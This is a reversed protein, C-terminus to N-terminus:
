GITITAGPCEQPDTGNCYGGLTAPCRRCRSTPKDDEWRHQAALERRQEADSEQKAIEWASPPPPIPSQDTPDVPPPLLYDDLPVLDSENAERRADQEQQQSTDQEKLSAIAPEKSTALVSEVTTSLCNLSLPPLRNGSDAVRNGSDSPEIVQTGGLRNGSNPEAYAPGLKTSAEYESGSEPLRNGSDSQYDVIFDNGKKPNNNTTWTLLGWKDRLQKCRWKATEFDCGCYAALQSYSVNVTFHVHGADLDPKLLLENSHNHLAQITTQVYSNRAGTRPLLAMVRRAVLKPNLREIEEKKTPPM